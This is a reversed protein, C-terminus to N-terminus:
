NMKPRHAAAPCFDRFRAMVFRSQGAFVNKAADSFYLFVKKKKKRNPVNSLSYSYFHTNCALVNWGFTPFNDM